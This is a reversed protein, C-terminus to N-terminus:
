WWTMDTIDREEGCIPCKVKIHGNAEFIVDVKVNDECIDHESIFKYYELTEIDNLSFETPYYM